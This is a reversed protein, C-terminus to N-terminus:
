TVLRSLRPVADGTPSARALAPAIDAASITEPPTIRISGDQDILARANVITIGVLAGHEDFRLARGEPTQDFEVARALDGAALYLM